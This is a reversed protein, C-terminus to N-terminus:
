KIKYAKHRNKLNNNNDNNNKTGHRYIYHKYYPQLFITMKIVDIRFCACPMVHYICGDTNCYYPQQMILTIVILM